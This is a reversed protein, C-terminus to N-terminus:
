GQDTQPQIAAQVREALAHGATRSYTQTLHHADRWVVVNGVIPPCLGNPCVADNMDILTAVGSTAAASRQPDTRLYEDLPLACADSRALCDLPAESFKPTDAIVLVHGTLSDLRTWTEHLAAEMSMDEEETSLTAGASQSLIVIDPADREIIQFMRRGWKLCAEYSRGRVRVPQTTLPCGSKTYATVRWGKATGAADAAPVWNAAHSDGAIIVKLGGEPNGLTCGVPDTEPLGLHCGQRYADPLDNKAAALPPLVSEVGPVVAGELAARAGPYDGLYVTRSAAITETRWVYTWVAASAVTCIVIGATGMIVPAAPGHDPSSRRYQDEIFTKSLQSIALTVAILFTGEILSLRAGTQATYYVILPWHWLYVSYSINGIWRMPRISLLTDASAKTSTAGAAIVFAAGLTPVLAAFGPFPTAESYLMACAAIAILGAAGLVVRLPEPLRPEATALLGGFGLEWIRTHSVFYARVPDEPSITVSFGLSVLCTIAIMVGLALRVNARRRATRATAAIMLLPWVIYFQEEISLSWYHQVPSPSNEAALYDVSAWALRWNEIYLASAGIEIATEQWRSPPLLPLAATVVLLVATAAPMLRRIRKAYFGCLSITKTYELERLLHGTILYGSIVFFVDVGIFGGPMAAPWLHFAVVTLVAVARLGQIEHRIAACSV